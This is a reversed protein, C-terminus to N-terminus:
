PTGPGRQEECVIDMLYEAYIRVIRDRGYRKTAREAATDSVSKWLMSDGALRRIEAGIAEPSRVNCLIGADGDLLAPINGASSGGIVPTGLAMAELVTMGFSEELAPHLMFSARAIRNLTDSYTTTGVFEVRADLGHHSAWDEAPGSPELQAGVLEYRWGLESLGSEAFARIAAPVNKRGRFGNSVTVITKERDVQPVAFPLNDPNLFNPIVRVQRTNSVQIRNAIYGSPASFYRGRYRIRSDLLARLTLYSVRDLLDPDQWTRTACYRLVKTADDHVTILAPVGSDLAAAAFEYTWHAHVVDPQVGRLAYVIASRETAFMRLASRPGTRPVVIVTLSGNAFVLTEDIGASTTIATVRMGEDLYGSVISSIIPAPYGVPLSAHRQPGLELLDLSMPGLVAVHLDTANHPAAKMM